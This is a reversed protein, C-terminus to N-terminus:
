KKKLLTIISILNLKKSKKRNKKPIQFSSYFDELDIIDINVRTVLNIQNKDYILLSENFVLKLDDKWMFKSNSLNINGEALSIELNLKNIEKVDAIEKIKYGTSINLNENNFIESQIIDILVSDDSLM